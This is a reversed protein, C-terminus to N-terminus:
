TEEPQMTESLISSTHEGALPPPLRYSVPTKSLKLPSGVVSLRGSKDLPYPIDVKMERALVHPDSFVADIANVPGVPVGVQELLAIWEKGTKRLMAELVLRDLEERNALRAENTAFRPDDALPAMDAVECWSRFQRDNGVCLVVHGDATATVRYPAINPHANGLRKPVTGSVLYNMAENALWSVQTDLLSVDIHQGGGGNNKHHLAALIGITAYLGTTIDAIGVGVKMPSGDPEGTISMIGGMAQALYDYGARGAYPGTQGFGTISCYILDPFRERLQEYSLGYKRLTGAKYNEVLVDCSEILKLATQLGAETSFDLAISRKNRNAALYYASETTPNGDIGTVFPPGWRRTDDGEGPKEVKLIDAGLDGLIQTCTPGALIRSMDFVRIGELAGRRPQSRNPAHM